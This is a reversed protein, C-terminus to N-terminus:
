EEPLIVTSYEVKVPMKTSDAYGEIAYENPDNTPRIVITWPKAPQNYVYNDFVPEGKPLTAKVYDVPTQGNAIMGQYSALSLPNATVGDLARDAYIVGNVLQAKKDEGCGLALIGSGILIVVALSRFNKMM